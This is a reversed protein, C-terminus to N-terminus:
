KTLEDDGPLIKSLQRHDTNKDHQTNTHQKKYVDLHTYSLACLVFCIQNVQHICVLSSLIYCIRCLGTVVYSTFIEVANKKSLKKVSKMISHQVANCFRNFFVLIEIESNKHSKDNKGWLKWKMHAHWCWGHLSFPQLAIHM